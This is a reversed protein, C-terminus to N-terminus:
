YRITLVAGSAERTENTVVKLSSDMPGAVVFEPFVCSCFQVICSISTLFGLFTLVALKPLNMSPPATMSFYLFARIYNKLDVVFYIKKEMLYIVRKRKTGSRLFIESQLFQISNLNQNLFNKEEFTGKKPSLFQWLLIM